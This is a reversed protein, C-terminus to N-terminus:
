CRIKKDRAVKRMLIAMSHIVEVDKFNENVILIRGGGKAECCCEIFSYNINCFYFANVINRWYADLADSDECSITWCGKFMGEEPAYDTTTQCSQVEQITKVNDKSHNLRYNGMNLRRNTVILRKDEKGSYDSPPNTSYFNELSKHCAPCYFLEPQLHSLDCGNKCEM